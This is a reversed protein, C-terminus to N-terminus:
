FLFVVLSRETGITNFFSRPCKPCIGDQFLELDDLRQSGNICIFGDMGTRVLQGAADM